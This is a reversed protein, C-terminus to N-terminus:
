PIGQQTPNLADLKSHLLGSVSNPLTQLAPHLNETLICNGENPVCIAGSDKLFGLIQEIIYTNM